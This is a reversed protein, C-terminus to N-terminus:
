RVPVSRRASGGGPWRGRSKGVRVSVKEGPLAFPVYVPGDATEAIGDGRAGLRNILVDMLRSEENAM